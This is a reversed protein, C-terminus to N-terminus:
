AAAKAAARATLAMITLTPNQIGQSPFAAGDTVFTGPMEWCENDPNVVSSVPDHGMRATGCEHVSLGPTLLAFDKTSLRAGAIEALEQLAEAQRQAQELEFPGHACSIRLTPIGFRDLTSCLDVRNDENPLMEADAVAVFYSQDAFAPSQYIRVGFGRSAANQHRTDYRPLYVCRGFPTEGPVHIAPGHGEVKMGAHDMLYRGLPDNERKPREQAQRTLLLIRTSELTSACLFVLPAQATALGATATDYFVVGTTRGTTDTTVHRAQAGTRGSLLGTAAAASLRDSHPAYRGLIPQFQPHKSRIARMLSAEAEHPGITESILSDPVWPNNDRQGTLKLKREVDEYWPSLEDTALPWRPSLGDSPHFDASGLRLYQRGHLPVAMRGGLGHARIWTFPRDPPTEYPNARDDVFLQPASPWAYCQTQVPQRWAGLKRLAQEAKWLVAAPLMRIASPTALRRLGYDIASRVPSRWIPVRQGADLLLVRLGRQTLHDAAVGGAAGAGIVIADFVGPRAIRELSTGAIATNLQESNIM